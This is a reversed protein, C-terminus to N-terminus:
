RFLDRWNLAFLDRRSRWSPGLVAAGSGGPLGPTLTATATGGPIGPTITASATGAPTGPTITATVTGTPVGTATPPGTPTTTGTPTPPGSSPTSTPPATPLRFSRPFTCRLARTDLAYLRAANLGLIQAKIRDTVEPYGFREMLHEPMRFAKLADIQWQPTGWWIADTGWLIREAGFALLLRGLLHGVADVGDVVAQAFVSGLEAYVNALHPMDFSRLEILDDFYVGGANYVVFNLKPWDAAARPIDRVGSHEADFVGVQVGKHVNVVEIGLREAEALMPYSVTEDDLWWPPNEDGFLGGGAGTYAEIAAIGLERVLREMDAIATGSDSDSQLNPTILGQTLMRQSNGLHNAADRTAAMSENSLPQLARTRGPIGSILAVATDSNLFIEKLFNARSLEELMGGHCLGAALEAPPCTRLSALWARLLPDTAAPRDLDLHHVQADVVFMDARFRERGADPDRTECMSVAYGGSGGDSGCGGLLNFAMLATATGAATSMFQRRSLGLARAREEAMAHILAAAQRREARRRSSGRRAGRTRRNDAKGDM